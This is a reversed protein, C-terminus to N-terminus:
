FKAFINDNEKASLENRSTKVSFQKEHREASRAAEPGKGRKAAYFMEVLRLSTM